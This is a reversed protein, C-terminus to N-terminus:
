SRIERSLTFIWIATVACVDLLLHFARVAFLSSPRVSKAIALLSEDGEALSLLLPQVALRQRTVDCLAELNAASLGLFAITILWALREPHPPAHSSGFFALIGLVATAYFGWYIQLQNSREVAVTLIQIFTIKNESMNYDIGCARSCFSHEISHLERGAGSLTVEVIARPWLVATLLSPAPPSAGLAHQQRARRELNLPCRALVGIRCM